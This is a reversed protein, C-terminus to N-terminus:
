TRERMEGERGRGNREDRGAAAAREARRVGPRKQRPEKASRRQVLRRPLRYAGGEREGGDRGAAEEM